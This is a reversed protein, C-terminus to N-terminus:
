ECCFDHFCDGDFQVIKDWVEIDAGCAGCTPRPEVPDSDLELDLQRPETDEGIRERLLARARRKINARAISTTLTGDYEPMTLFDALVEQMAKVTNINM